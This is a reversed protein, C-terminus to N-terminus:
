MEIIKGNLSIFISENLRGVKIWERLEINGDHACEEFLKDPHNCYKNSVHQM